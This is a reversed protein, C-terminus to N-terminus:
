VGLPAIMLPVSGLAPSTSVALATVAWNRPWPAVTVFRMRTAPASWTFRCTRTASTFRRTSFSNPMLRRALPWAPFKPKERTEPPEAAEGPVSGIM